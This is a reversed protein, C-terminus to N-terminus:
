MVEEVEVHESNSGLKTEEHVSENQKAIDNNRIWVVGKRFWVVILSQRCHPAQKAKM